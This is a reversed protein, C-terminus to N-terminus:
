LQQRYQDLTMLQITEGPALCPVKAMAHHHQVTVVTGGIKLQNLCHSIGNTDPACNSDSLVTASTAGVPMHGERLNAM